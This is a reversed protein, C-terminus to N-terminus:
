GRLPRRGSYLVSRRSSALLLLVGLDEIAPAETTIRPSGTGRFVRADTTVRSRKMTLASIMGIALGQYRAGPAPRARSFFTSPSRNPVLDIDALSHLDGVYFEFLEHSMDDYKEM